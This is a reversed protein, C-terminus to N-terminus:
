GFRREMLKYVKSDNRAAIVAITVVTLVNSQEDLDYVIRYEGVDVRFFNWGKARFHQGRIAKADAPKPDRELDDLKQSIQRLHKANGIKGLDKEAASDFQIEVTPILETESDESPRSTEGADPLPAKPKAKKSDSM